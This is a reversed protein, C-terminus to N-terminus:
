ENLKGYKRLREKVCQFPERPEDARLRATLSDYFDEWIEGHKKLNIIVATKKGAEDMIYQIGKM